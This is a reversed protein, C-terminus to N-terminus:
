WARWWLQGHAEWPSGGSGIPSAGGASKTNGVGLPEERRVRVGVGAEWTRQMHADLPAMPPRSM